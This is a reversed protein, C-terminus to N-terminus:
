AFPPVPVFFRKADIKAENDGVRLDGYGQRDQMLLLFMDQLMQKPYGNGLSGDWGIDRISKERVTNVTIYRRLPSGPSTHKYLYCLTKDDLSIKHLYQMDVLTQLIGSQLVPLNLQEALSWAEALATIASGHYEKEEDNDDYPDVKRTYLWGALIGFADPTTNKIRYELTSGRIFKGRDFTAHFAAMFAIIFMLMNMERWRPGPVSNAAIFDARVASDNGDYWEDYEGSSEIVSSDPAALPSRLKDESGSNETILPFEADVVGNNGSTSRGSPAITVLGPLQNAAESSPALYHPAPM